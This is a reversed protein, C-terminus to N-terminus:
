RRKRARDIPTRGIHDACGAVADELGMAQTVQSSVPPCVPVATVNHRPGERRLLPNRNKCGYGARRFRREDPTGDPFGRSLSRVSVWWLAGKRDEPMTLM